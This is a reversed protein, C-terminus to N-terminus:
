RDTFARRATARARDCARCRRSGDPRTAVNDGIFPHGAACHTNNRKWGKAANNANEGQVKPSAWRCNGPEYGRTGDIRDVTTGKPREGMDALFAEFSARWRACVAIGRAGYSPFKAHRPNHCRARMAIWSLFTPSM